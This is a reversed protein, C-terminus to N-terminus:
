NFQDSLLGSAATFTKISGDTPQFRILGNNTTLWLFGSDDEIIQYVVGHVAGGSLPYPIFTKSQSDFRCFGKGQTTLWIQNNSDEFISLVKDYPPSGKKDMHRFHEWKKSLADYRFVGNAYTAVWLNGKTDEKIDYVLNHDLEPVREFKGNTKDYKILSLSTGLYIHGTSSKLISFVYNDQITSPSDDATYSKISGTVTNIVHVGKSFTGVWLDDGDMCLGHINSFKSSA